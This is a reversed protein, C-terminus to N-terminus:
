QNTFSYTEILDLLVHGHCQDPVCWCGLNKNKLRLLECVLAPSNNLKNIMYKRYKIIVEDRTGDRGIKYINCFPSSETPFRCGNIFVIGKRGIYANHEDNMWEELNNYGKERIYKVKCNVVSM